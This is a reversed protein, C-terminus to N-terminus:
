STSTSTSTSTTTTTSTSTTLAIGKWASNTGDYVQLTFFSGSDDLFMEGDKPASPRTYTILGAFKKFTTKAM